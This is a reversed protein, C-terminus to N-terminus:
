GVNKLIEGTHGAFILNHTAGLTFLSRQGRELTEEATHICCSDTDTLTFTEM